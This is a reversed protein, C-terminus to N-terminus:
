GPSGVLRAVPTRRVLMWPVLGAALGAAVALALVGAVAGADFLLPFSWGFSRTNVVAVLLWALAAGTPVALVCVALLILGAEALMVGGVARVSAGLARLVGLEIRRELHLSLLATLVGTLALLMAIAQLVWTIAFTEDFAALVGERLTGVSAFDAGPWDRALRERLAELDVGGALLLAANVPGTEGHLALYTPESLLCYGRDLSFDQFVAAVRLARPGDRSPLV